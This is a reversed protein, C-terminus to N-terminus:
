RRRRGRSASERLRSELGTHASRRRLWCAPPRSRCGPASKSFSASTFRKGIKSIRSNKSEWGPPRFVTAWPALGPVATRKRQYGPPRCFFTSETARRASLGLCPHSSSLSSRKTRRTCRFQETSARRQHPCRAPGLAVRALAVHALVAPRREAPAHPALGLDASALEARDQAAPAAEGRAIALRELM